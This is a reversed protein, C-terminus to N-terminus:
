MFRAIGPPVEDEVVRTASVIGVRNIKRQKAGPILLTMEALRKAVEPLLDTYPLPKSLMEMIPPGGSVPKAKLRHHFDVFAKIPEIGHQFGDETTFSFAFSEHRNVTFLVRDGDVLRDLIPRIADIISDGSTYYPDIKFGISPTSALKDCWSV